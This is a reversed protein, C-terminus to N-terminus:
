SITIGSLSNEVIKLCIMTCVIICFTRYRTGNVPWRPISIADMCKPGSSVVEFRGWGLERELLGGGGEGEDRRGDGKGM